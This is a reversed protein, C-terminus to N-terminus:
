KYIEFRSHSVFSTEGHVHLDCTHQQREREECRTRGCLCRFLGACATECEGRATKRARVAFAKLAASSAVEFCTHRGIMAVGSISGRRDLTRYFTGRHQPHVVGHARIWGAMIVTHVPRRALFELAGDREAERLPEAFLVSGSATNQKESASSTM